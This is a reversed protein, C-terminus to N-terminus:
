RVCGEAGRGAGRQALGIGPRVVIGLLAVFCVCYKAAVRLFPAIRAFSKTTRRQNPRLWVASRVGRGADPNCVTAVAHSKILPEKIGM